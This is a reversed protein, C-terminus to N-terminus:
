PKPKTNVTKTVTITVNNTQTVTSVKTVVQTQTIVVTSVGQSASGGAKTADTSTLNLVRSHLNGNSNNLNSSSGSGIIGDIRGSSTLASYSSALAMGILFAVIVLLLTRPFYRRNKIIIEFSNNPNSSQM